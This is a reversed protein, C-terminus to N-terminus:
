LRLIIYLLVFLMSSKYESAGKEKQYFLNQKQIQYGM